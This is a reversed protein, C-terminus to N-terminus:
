KQRNEGEEGEEEKEEEEEEEEGEENRRDSDGFPGDMKPWRLASMHLVCSSAPPHLPTSYWVSVKARM